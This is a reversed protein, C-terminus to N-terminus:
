RAPGSASTWNFYFLFSIFLELVRGTISSFLAVVLYSDPIWLSLEWFSKREKRWKGASVYSSARWFILFVPGSKTEKRKNWVAHSCLLTRNGPRCQVSVFSNLQSDFGYRVRRFGVSKGPAVSSISNWKQYIFLFIFYMLFRSFAQCRQATVCASIRITFVCFFPFVKLWNRSIGM